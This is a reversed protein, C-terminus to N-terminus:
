LHGPLARRDACNELSNGPNQLLSGLLPRKGLAGTPRRAAVAALGPATLPAVLAALGPILELSAINSGVVYLGCVSWM